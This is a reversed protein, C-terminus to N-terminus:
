HLYMNFNIYNFSYKKPFLFTKFYLEIWKNKNAKYNKYRKIWKLINDMYYLHIWVVKLGSILFYKEHNELVCSNKEPNWILM